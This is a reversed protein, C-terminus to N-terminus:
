EKFKSELQLRRLLNPDVNNGNFIVFSAPIEFRQVSGSNSTDQWTFFVGQEDGVIAQKMSVIQISYGADLDFAEQPPLNMDVNYNNLIAWDKVRNICHERYAEIKWVANTLDQMIQEDLHMFTDREYNQQPFNSSSYDVM